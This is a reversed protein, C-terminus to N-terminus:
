AHIFPGKMYAGHYDAKVLKVHMAATNPTYASDSPNLKIKPAQLLESMYGQWLQHLTVFNEFRHIM